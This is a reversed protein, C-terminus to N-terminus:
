ASFHVILARSVHRFLGASPLPFREMHQGMHDCCGSLVAGSVTQNQMVESLWWDAPEVSLAGTFVLM